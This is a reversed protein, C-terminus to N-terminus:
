GVFADASRAVLGKADLTFLRFDLGLMDKALADYNDSLQRTRAKWDQTLRFATVGYVFVQVALADSLSQIVGAAGRQADSMAEDLIARAQRRLAGIRDADPARPAGNALEWFQGLYGAFVDALDNVSMGQAGMAEGLASFVDTERLAAAGEANDTAMLKATDELRRRRLDPDPAFAYPSPAPGGLGPLGGPAPAPKSPIRAFAPRLGSLDDFTTM